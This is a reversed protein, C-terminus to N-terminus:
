NSGRSIELRNIKEDIEVGRWRDCVEVMKKRVKEIKKGRTKRVENGM